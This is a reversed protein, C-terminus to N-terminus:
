RDELPSYCLEGWDDTYGHEMLIQMFCAVLHELIASARRVAVRNMRSNYTSGGQVLQNRVFLVRDLIAALWPEFQAQELIEERTAKTSFTGTERRRSYHRSLYPDEFLARAARDNNELVMQMLGDCDNGLIQRIFLRTSVHDPEPAMTKKNWRSALTTLAIWQAILKADLDEPTSCRESFELWTLARHIRVRVEEYLHARAYADRRPKWLKRLTGMSLPAGGWADAPKPRSTRTPM